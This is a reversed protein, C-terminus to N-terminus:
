GVRLATVPDIRSARLAPLSAALAALAAVALGATAYTSADLFSVGFLLSELSRGMAAAGVLGLVIGATVVKMTNRVILAFTSGADAGLAMRLGIEATRRSVSYAVVGYVGVAALAAACIALGVLLAMNFRPQAVSEALLDEIASVKAIPLAADISAMATRIRKGAV